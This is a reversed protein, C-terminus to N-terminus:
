VCRGDDGLLVAADLLGDGHAADGIADTHFLHEGDVSGGNLLDLGDALTLNAARLEIVQAVAHALAGLDLLADSDQSNPQPSAVAEGCLRLKM